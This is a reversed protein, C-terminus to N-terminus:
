RNNIEDPLDNRYGSDRNKIYFLAGYEIACIVVIFICRLISFYGLVTLVLFIFSFLLIFFSRLPLGIIEPRRRIGNQVKIEM